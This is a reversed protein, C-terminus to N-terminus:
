TGSWNTHCRRTSYHTWQPKGPTPTHTQTSDQIAQHKTWMFHGVEQDVTGHESLISKRQLCINNQHSQPAKWVRQLNRLVDDVLQEPNLIQYNKIDGTGGYQKRFVLGDKLFIRDENAEHRKFRWVTTLLKEKHPQALMKFKFNTLVLDVDQEVQLRANAIIGRLSCSTTNEDTTTFETFSLKTWTPEERAVWETAKKRSYNSYKKREFTQEEPEDAGNTQTSFFKEEDVGDSSSTM